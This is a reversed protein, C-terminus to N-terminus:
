AAIAADIHHHSSKAVKSLKPGWRTLEKVRTNAVHAALRPDGTHTLKGETVATAFRDIAPGMRAISNTPFELVRREGYRAAWRELESRWHWPDLYAVRVDFGDFIADITGDVDARDVRFDPDRDKNEWYGLVEIHPVDEVTAALLCTCDGGVSGDFGLAIAEGPVL